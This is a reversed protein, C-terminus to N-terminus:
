FGGYMVCSLNSSLIYNIQFKKLKEPFIGFRKFRLTSFAEIALFHKYFVKKFKFFAWFFWFRKATKVVFRPQFIVFNECWCFFFSKPTEKTVFVLHCCLEFLFNEEGRPEIEGSKKREEMMDRMKRKECKKWSKKEISHTHHNALTVCVCTLSPQLFIKRLHIQTKRRLNHTHGCRSFRM